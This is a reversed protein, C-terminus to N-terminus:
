TRLIITDIVTKLENWKEAHKNSYEKESQIGEKEIIMRGFSRITNLYDEWDTTKVKKPPINDNDEVVKMINEMLPKYIRICDEYGENPLSIQDAHQRIVTENYLLCYPNRSECFSSNIEQLDRLLRNFEPHLKLRNTTDIEKKVRIKITLFSVFASVVSPLLIDLVFPKITNWIDAWTILNSGTEPLSTPVITPISLLIISSINLFM